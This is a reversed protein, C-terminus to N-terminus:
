KKKTKTKPKEEKAEKLKANEAKLKEIEAMLQNEVAKADAPEVYEVVKGTALWKKAIADDVELATNPLLNIFSVNGDKDISSEQFINKSKNFVKM